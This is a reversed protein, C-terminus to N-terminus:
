SRSTKRCSEKEVLSLVFPQFHTVRVRLESVANMVTKNIGLSEGRELLGRALLEPFGLQLSQSQPVPRNNQTQPTTGGSGVSQGVKRIDTSSRVRTAPRRTRVPSQQPEPVELPINLLNRNEIAISSGTSPNPSTYLAFAQRLLLVAHHPASPDADTPPPPYRLLRTLQTSYDAPIVVHVALIM